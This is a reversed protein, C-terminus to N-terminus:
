PAPDTPSGSDPGTSPGASPAGPSPNGPNNTPTSPFFGPNNMDKLRKENVKKNIYLKIRMKFFDGNLKYLKFKFLKIKLDLEQLKGENEQKDKLLQNYDKKPTKEEEKAKFGPVNSFFSPKAKEAQDTLEEVLLKLANQEKILSDYKENPLHTAFHDDLLHQYCIYFFDVNNTTILVHDSPKYCIMCSKSQSSAVLRLLYENEFPTSM